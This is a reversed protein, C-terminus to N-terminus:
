EFTSDFHVMGEVLLYVMKVTGSVCQMVSRPGHRVTSPVM